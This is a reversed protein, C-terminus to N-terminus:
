GIYRLRVAIGETSWPDCAPDLPEVALRQARLEDEIDTRSTGLTLWATPHLEVFLALSAGRRAIIRRAGRLADLEAAEVDIKIVDPALGLTRLSMWM